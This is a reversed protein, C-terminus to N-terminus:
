SVERKGEWGEFDGERGPVTAGLQLFQAPRPLEARGWSEGQYRGGLREEGSLCVFGLLHGCLFAGVLPWAMAVATEPDQESETQLIYPTPDLFARLAAAKHQALSLSAIEFCVLASAPM